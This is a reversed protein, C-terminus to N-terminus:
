VDKVQGAREVQRLVVAIQAGFAAVRVEVDAVAECVADDGIRRGQATKVIRMARFSEPEATPLEGRDRNILGALREGDVGAEVDVAVAIQSVPEVRQGTQRLHVISPLPQIQSRPRGRQQRRPACVPLQSAVDEAGGADGVSIERDDFVEADYFSLSQRKARLQEVNPIARIEVDRHADELRGTEAARGAGHQRRTLELDRELIQESQVQPRVRGRT